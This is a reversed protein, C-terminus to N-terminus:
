LQRITSTCWAADGGQRCWRCIPIPRLGSHLPELTSPIRKPDKARRARGDTFCHILHPPIEVRLAGFLKGGVIAGLMRPAIPRLSGRLGGVCGREGSQHRRVFWRVILQRILAETIVTIRNKGSQFTVRWHSLDSLCHGSFCGTAPPLVGMFMRMRRQVKHIAPAPKRNTPLVGEMVPM